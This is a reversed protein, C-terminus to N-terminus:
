YVDFAPSSPSSKGPRESEARIVPQGDYFIERLRKYIRASARQRAKTDNSAEGELLEDDVEAITLRRKKYSTESTKIGFRRARKDEYPNEVRHKFGSEGIPGSYSQTTGGAHSKHTHSAALAADERAVGTLPPAYTYDRTFGRKIDHSTVSAMLGSIDAAEQLSKNIQPTTAPQDYLLHTGSKHIACIVPRSMAQPRLAIRGGNEAAHDLVQKLTEGVFVHTRLGHIMILNVPDTLNLENNGLPELYKPKAKREDDRGFFFNAPHKTKSFYKQILENKLSM